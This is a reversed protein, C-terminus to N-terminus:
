GQIQGHGTVFKFRNWLESNVEGVMELNEEIQWALKACGNHGITEFEETEELSNGELMGAFVKARDLLEHVFDILDITSMQNFDMKPRSQGIAAKQEM